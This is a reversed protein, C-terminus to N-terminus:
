LSASAVRAGRARKYDEEWEGAIALASRSNPVTQERVTVGDQEVRVHWDGARCSIVCCVGPTLSWLTALDEHSRDNM